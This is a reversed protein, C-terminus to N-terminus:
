FMVRVSLGASSHSIMPTVAVDNGGTMREADDYAERFSKGVTPGIALGVLTGAVVDSFWHMSSGEHATVGIALYALYFGGVIKLAVSRPYFSWLCTIAATNVALHGSPWGYHIGGRLFGFRFMRSAIRMDPYAKSDPNPRGTVAKLLSVYLESLLSAQLVAYGAAIAEDNRDAEGYAFLAGGLAVPVSYGLWVSPGTFSDVESRQSFFRHIEYDIDCSAIAWTAVCASSHLLINMGAFSGAVNATINSLPSCSFERKGQAVLVHCSLAVFAIMLVVRSTFSM